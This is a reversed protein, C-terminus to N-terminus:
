KNHCTLCLQSNVKSIKLMPGGGPAIFTNHVDHCSSCQLMGNSLLLTEISGLVSRGNIDGIRVNTTSPDRLGGDAAATTSTYKLSVPHDNALNTGLNRSNGAAFFSAGSLGGYSDLAVTGDHCSLCLLSVDAPQARVTAELTSSGYVNFTATTIQHNWLPAEAVTADANHPTHCAICIEDSANWGQNSFDHASGSISGANVQSAVFVGALVAFYMKHSNTHSRVNYEM